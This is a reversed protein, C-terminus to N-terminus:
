SWSGSSVRSCGGSGLVSQALDGFTKVDTGFRLVTIRPFARQVARVMEERDDIFVTRDQAVDVGGSRLADFVRKIMGVKDPHFEIAPHTFTEELSLARLLPLVIEPRNWSAVSIIVGKEGCVSLFDRAGPRLKVAVGHSDSVEDISTKEFPPHLLSADEHDWLTEDLDLIVM